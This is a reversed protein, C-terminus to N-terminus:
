RAAIEFAVADTGSKQGLRDSIELEIRYTGPALSEPFAVGYQIHFDRRVSLCHDEVDPFDGEDVVKGSSDLVRYRTALSTHYGRETSESRYRDVEAYLTAQDGARFRPRGIPEYAGFGYVKECFAVNRVALDALEGLREAAAQQHHSAAAVRMPREPRRATDLMTALAYLQESWYSQEAAPLGPITAVAPGQQDAVLRLLRLRAHEYTRDGPADVLSSELTSIATDVSSRWSTPRAPASPSAPVDSTASVLRITTGAGTANPERSPEPSANGFYHHNEIRQPVPAAAPAPASTPQTATAPTVASPNTTPLTTAPPTTTPPSTSGDTPRSAVRMPKTAVPSEPSAEIALPQPAGAANPAGTTAVTETASSQQKAALQQRLAGTSKAREVALPWLTPESRAMQELAANHAAPDSLALAQLEPLVQALAQQESLQAFPGVHPAGPQAAGALPAAPIAPAVAGRTLNTAATSSAVVSADATKSAVSAAGGLTRCGSCVGLAGGVCLALWGALLARNM